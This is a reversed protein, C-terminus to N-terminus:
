VLPGPLEEQLCLGDCGLGRRAPGEEAGARGVRRPLAASCPSPRPSTGRQLAAGLNCRYLSLGRERMSIGCRARQRYEGAAAGPPAAARGGTGDGGAGLTGRGGPGRRRRGAAGVGRCGWSVQPARPPPALGRCLWYSRSSAAASCAPFSERLDRPAQQSIYDRRRRAARASPRGGNRASPRHQRGSGRPM